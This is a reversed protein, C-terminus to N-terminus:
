NKWPGEHIWCLWQELVLLNWLRYSHDAQGTLHEQILGEVTPRHLPNYRSRLLTDCLMERWAGRFWEALPLGFGMKSRDRVERPLLDGLSQKLFLKTGRSGLKWTFPLRAAMEMLEHDLFPCRAELSHAMTATDLKFLLDGPLYSEIDVAIATEAGDEGLRLQQERIMSELWQEDPPPLNKGFLATREDQSFYTVWRPYGAELPLPVERFLRGLRRVKGSLLPGREILRGAQSALHALLPRRRLKETLWIWRYREYGAFSEDGGDGTLAVTVHKRALQSLYWTPLISADALPEGLHAILSPLIEGRSPEVYFEHHETRWKEAVRRAYGLENFRAERFGISFTQIPRDSSQAMLAVVLSSDIGGSLFAGLPVDSVMRLRVAETLKERLERGWDERGGVVKPHYELRWYRQVIPSGGVDITLFHGPLLKKIGSIATGDGPVYGYRLYQGIAQWDVQREGEGLTLLAQIESAFSLRGPSARYFLPKKGTRDRALFLRRRSQDWIALAFMGRLRALCREGWHQYAALLVETDTETQFRYGFGSLDSRLDRYNYIEGNYSIHITGAKNSMPQNGSPRLDLVALRCHGLWCSGATLSAQADPGRHIMEGIARLQLEPSPLYGFTGVIGCM